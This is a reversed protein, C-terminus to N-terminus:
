TIFKMNSVQLVAHLRMLEAHKAEIFQAGATLYHM